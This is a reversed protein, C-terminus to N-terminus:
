SACPKPRWSEYKEYKRNEPKVGFFADYGTEWWEKQQGSCDSPAVRDEESKAAVWGQVFFSRTTKAM